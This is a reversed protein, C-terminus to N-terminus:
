DKITSLTVKDLLNSLDFSGQELSLLLEVKDYSYCFLWNAINWSGDQLRQITEAAMAVFAEKSISEGSWRVTLFVDADIDPSFHLGEPDAVEEPPFVTPFISAGPITAEILPLVAAHMEKELRSRLFSDSYSGDSNAYVLVSLDPDSTPRVIGGYADFKFNFTARVFTFETSPYTDALYEMVKGRMTMLVFPNGWFSVYFSWAGYLVVMLVLVLAVRIIKDNRSM